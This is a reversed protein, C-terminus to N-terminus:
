INNQFFVLLKPVAPPQKLSPPLLFPANSNIASPTGCNASLLNDLSPVAITKWLSLEDPPLIETVALLM